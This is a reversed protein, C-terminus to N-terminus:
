DNNFISNVRWNKTKLCCCYVIKAKMAFDLSKQSRKEYCNFVGNKDVPLCRCFEKNEM